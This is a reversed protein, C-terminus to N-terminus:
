AITIHRLYDPSGNLDQAPPGLVIRHTDNSDVTHKPRGESAVSRKSSVVIWTNIPSGPTPLVAIASPRALLTAAPSTGSDTLSLSIQASSM